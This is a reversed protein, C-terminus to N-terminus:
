VEHRSTELHDRETKEVLVRYASREKMCAMHGLWKIIRSKIVQIGAQHTTFIMFIKM